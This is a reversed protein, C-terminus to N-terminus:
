GDGTLHHCLRFGAHYLEAAKQMRGADGGGLMIIVDAQKPDETRNHNFSEIISVVTLMLTICITIIILRIKM